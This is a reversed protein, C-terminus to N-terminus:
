DIREIWRKLQQVFSIMLAMGYAEQMGVETFELMINTRKNVLSDASSFFFPHEHFLVSM